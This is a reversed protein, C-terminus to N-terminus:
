VLSTLLFQRFQENLSHPALLDALLAIIVMLIIYRLGAVAGKNRSFYHWFEQLPTLQEPMKAIKETILQFM